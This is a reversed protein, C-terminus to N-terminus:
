FPPQDPLCDLVFPQHGLRLRDAFAKGLARREPEAQDLAREVRGLAVVEVGLERELAVQLALGPERGVVSFAHAGEQLLAGRDKGATLATSPMSGCRNCMASIACPPNWM